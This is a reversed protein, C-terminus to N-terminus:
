PAIQVKGRTNGERMEAILAPVAELPLTESVMAEARVPGADFARVTEIFDGTDYGVPFHLSLERSGLLVPLVPEQAICMGLSVVAGGMAAYGAAQQLAGPKGVAEVVIAPPRAFARAVADPDDPSLAVAADAGIELAAQHRVASRTAVVIRAAGMRRAWFIAGLGMSGAGLVLVDAGPAMRAMRLARRGCAVPEVLAGEADSVSQPFRFASAETVVMREGFGGFQMRGNTCFLLRGARCNECTGCFGSPLVAVRDGVELRTVDRGTEIVTGASEHGLRCGAPYDFPSGSTMAIDSGCVGCRSVAIRVDRPGLPEDPVDEIAIHGPAHFIAAKM